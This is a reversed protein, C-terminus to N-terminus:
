AFVQAFSETGPAGIGCRCWDVLLLEHERALSELAAVAEAPPADGAPHLALVTVADGEVVGYLVWGGPLPYAFGGRVRLEHGHLRLLGAHGLGLARVDGLAVGELPAELRSRVHLRRFGPAAGREDHVREIEGIEDDVVFRMAASVLEVQRWDDERLVAETGDAAGADDPLRDNLSPLSFLIDRLDATTERVRALTLVLRKTRACEARTPPEARLVAWQEDGIHMTTEILFTEPLQEPPMQTKGIAQGSEADVFTVEVKRSFFM